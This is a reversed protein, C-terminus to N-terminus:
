QLCDYYGKSSNYGCDFGSAQCNISKIEDNECWIVSGEECRGDWTEGNCPDM